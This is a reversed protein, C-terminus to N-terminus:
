AGSPERPPPYIGVLKAILIALILQGIIVEIVSAMKAVRTLPVIDGFGTSTLTSFSFYMLDILELATSEGRVAFSLPIARDVIAYIFSWLVGIMLYAAAAGWLRDSTMVEPEFVYRLLYIVAIAYVIADLRLTIDNYEAVGQDLSLWHFAIAPGVLILAILFSTTSRGLAAIVALLLFGNVLHKFLSGEIFPSLVILALLAAFLYFCRQFFLRRLAQRTAGLTGIMSTHRPDLEDQSRTDLACEAVDIRAVPMKGM